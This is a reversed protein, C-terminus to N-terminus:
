GISGRFKFTSSTIFKACLNSVGEVPYEAVLAAHVQLREANTRPLVAPNEIHVHQYPDHQQALQLGTPRSVGLAKERGM